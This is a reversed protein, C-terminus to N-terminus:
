QSLQRECFTALALARDRTECDHLDEIGGEEILHGYVTWCAIPEGNVHLGDPAVESLLHAVLYTEATEPDSAYEDVCAMVEIADYRHWEPSQNQGLCNWDVCFPMDNKSSSERDLPSDSTATQVTSHSLTLNTTSM